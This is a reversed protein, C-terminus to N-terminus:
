KALDEVGPGFEVRLVPDTPEEPKEGLVELVYQIAKLEGEAAREALASLIRNELGDKALLARLRASMTKPEDQALQCAKDCIDCPPVTPWDKRPVKCRSLKCDYGPMLKM